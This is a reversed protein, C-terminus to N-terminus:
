YKGAGAGDASRGSPRVFRMGLAATANKRSYFITEHPEKKPRNAIFRTIRRRPAPHERNEGTARQVRGHTPCLGRTKCGWGGNSNSATPSCVALPNAQYVCVAFKGM